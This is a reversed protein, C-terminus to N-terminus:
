LVMIDHKELVHLLNSTYKELLNLMDIGVEKTLTNKDHMQSQM